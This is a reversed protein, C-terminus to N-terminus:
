ALKYFIELDDKCEWCFKPKSSGPTFVYMKKGNFLIGYKTNDLLKIYSIIQQQYDDISETPPKVEIVLNGNAEEILYDVHFQRTGVTIQEEYKIDKDKDWGLDKLIDIVIKERFAKESRENSECGRKIDNRLNEKDIM